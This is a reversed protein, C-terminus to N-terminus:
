GMVHLHVVKKGSSLRTFLLTFYLVYDLYRGVRIYEPVLM